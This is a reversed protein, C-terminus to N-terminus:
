TTKSARSLRCERSIRNPRMWGGPTSTSASCSGTSRRGSSSGRRRTSPTTSRTHFGVWDRIKEQLDREYLFGRQHMAEFNETGPYFKPWVSIMLRAHQDHIAQIWGAPDPFRAPEFQHSGWADAKWYFWDQVINDFPIGRSRFGKVIDLSEQATKYRQRSQWLGFVWQPMMPAPGTLRRYGAIVQDVEPGYMFYYDVGDAVQSWLSTASDAAPTKWRLQMALPNDDKVWDIRLRYRQGAELRVRALDYWPLWGQRWHNVVLQGDIWVKLNGDSYTQFQYDGTTQAEVSGEWRV